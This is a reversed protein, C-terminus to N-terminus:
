NIYGEEFGIIHMTTNFIFEIFVEAFMSSHKEHVSVSTILQSVCQHNVSQPLSTILQSVSQHIVSQSVSLYFGNSLRDEHM